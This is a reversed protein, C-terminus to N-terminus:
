DESGILKLGNETCFAQNDAAWEFFLTEFDEGFVERFEGQGITMNAFVLEKGYREVLWDFFCGAEYYSLTTLTPHELMRETMQVPAQSVASFTQGIMSGDRIAAAAACYMKRIDPDGDQNAFGRAALATRGDESYASCFMRNKCIFKSVYEAIAESWFDGDIEYRMCCHTLYHAYEHLLETFAMDPQYIEICPVNWRCYAGYAGLKAKETRGSFDTYIDIVPVDDLYGDLMAIADEFDAEQNELLRELGEFFMEEGLLEIDAAALHWTAHPTRVVYAYTNSDSKELRYEGLDVEPLDADPEATPEPEATAEPAATPEATPEQTQAKCGFAGICLILSLLIAIIRITKM